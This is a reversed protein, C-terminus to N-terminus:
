HRLSVVLALEISGERRVVVPVGTGLLSAMSGLLEWSFLSALVTLTSAM